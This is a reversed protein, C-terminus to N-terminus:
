KRSEQILFNKFEVEKVLNPQHFFGNILDKVQQALMEKDNKFTKIDQQEMIKMISNHLMDKNTDTFRKKYNPSTLIVKLSFSVYYEYHKTAILFDNFNIFNKLVRRGGDKSNEQANKSRQERVIRKENELMNLQQSISQSLTEVNDFQGSSVNM